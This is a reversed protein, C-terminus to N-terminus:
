SFPDIHTLEASLKWLRVVVERDVAYGRAGVFSPEDGADLPVIGCDECYLGGLGEL